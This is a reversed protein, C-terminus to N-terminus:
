TLLQLLLMTKIVYTKYHFLNQIDQLDAEGTFFQPHVRACVYMCVYMCVYIFLYMCEYMRVYMCVCIYIFLYIFVNMCVYM